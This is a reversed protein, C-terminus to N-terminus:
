RPRPYLLPAEGLRILLPLAGITPEKLRFRDGNVRRGAGLGCCHSQAGDDRDDGPIYDLQREIEVAAACTWGSLPNPGMDCCKRILGAARDSEIAATSRM